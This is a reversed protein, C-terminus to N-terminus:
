RMYKKYLATTSEEPKIDLEELLTNEFFKYFKQLEVRGGTKGHYIIKMKAANENYPDIKLLKELLTKINNTFEGQRLNKAAYKELLDLVKQAYKHRNEEAWLYEEKEFFDGNYINLIQEMDNESHEKKDLICKLEFYDSKVPVNLRYSENSYEIGNSYGLKELGKRLQYITTHLLTGAKEMNRDPFIDNMIIDKSVAADKYWLYAFLEKAKQTRWTLPKGSDDLIQLEGFCKLKLDGTIVPTAIDIKERLRYITKRMRAEQVPKQLYDIADLEFADLAYQSYATVFVIEINKISNALISALELGGVRGMEIDLFIVDPKTEDINNLAEQADTYADVIEVDHYSSLLEKLVVLAMPEDDVLVVRM